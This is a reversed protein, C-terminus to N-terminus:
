VCRSAFRRHLRRNEIYLILCLHMLFFYFFCEFVIWYSLSFNCEPGPLNVASYFHQHAVFFAFVAIWWEPVPDFECVEWRPGRQTIAWQPEPPLKVSLAAMGSISALVFVEDKEWLHLLGRSWSWTLSCPFLKYINLPQFSKRLIKSCPTTAIKQFLHLEAAAANKQIKRSLRHHPCRYSVEFWKEVSNM